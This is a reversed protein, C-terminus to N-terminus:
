KKSSKIMQLFQEESLIIKDMEMAKKLKSGAKEGAVVHTVKGTVTTAVTGGQEKVIKKAESRSMTSLGGTFLFTKGSLSLNAQNSRVTNISVGAQSLRKLMSRTTPDSFYDIISEAAQIGIGDIELLKELTASYLEELTKFQSELLASNVEGIFRIGLATLLRGLTTEKKENIASLVNEASQQGWGELDVLEEKKLSFIDDIDKVLQINFLQEMSKKGLGEIDLGAKSTFHILSKLRQAPCHPNPCRTVAEGEPKLLKHHCVPCNPPWIIALEDGKRTDIIPKIIEPIVDGARQVLVTDGIKLGKRELEDRNHLTARSVMVGDVEVPELLAVPTIAGTRGVQFVVDKLRTTAQIAPFKCAIAWRPARAKNGLRAQLRFDDVKVVMGDIEYALDHRITALHAFSDIVEQITRCHRIHKNIPMGLEELFSLLQLQTTCPTAAPDAVGYAFIKLPRTATIAPDLQRLSGAAGNRPNAFLPEGTKERDHNLQAFGDKDMFVEGRINLTGSVDQLLHLPISHITRLQATIDEGTTGDGRTSGQVFISNEYRLEVALGDLKPEASYCVVGDFNLFRRIKKEFDIIDQNTFGNELSLMPQDRVVQSFKDLPASGVRRTPSDDTVLHPYAKELEVLEQFLRDYEGDSITPHDLVYYRHAHDRLQNVLESIRKEVSM